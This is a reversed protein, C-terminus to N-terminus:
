NVRMNVRVRGPKENDLMAPSLTNEMSGGELFQKGTSSSCHFKDCANALKNHTINTFQVDGM